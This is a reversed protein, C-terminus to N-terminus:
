RIMAKAQASKNDTFRVDASSEVSRRRYDRIM